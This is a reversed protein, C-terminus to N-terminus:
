DIREAKIILFIPIRSRREYESQDQFLSIDPRGEKIEVVRFGADKLLQWYTELSRHYKVVSGGLWNQSRAGEAFYQDVTWDQKKGAPRPLHMSSTLLPHEVSFLFQANPRLGQYLDRFFGALDEIYHLVLRAIAWDYNSLGYEFQTLEAQELRIRQDCVVQQGMEIMKASADVGLYSSAGLALLEESLDGYGCGLDLVDGKIGQVLRRIIPKEILENPSNARKRKQTYREFVEGQDYFDQGPLEPNM